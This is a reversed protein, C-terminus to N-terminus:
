NPKDAAVHVSGQSLVLNVAGGGEEEKWDSICFGCVKRSNKEAGGETGRCGKERKWLLGDVM